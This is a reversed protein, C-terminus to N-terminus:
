PPYAQPSYRLASLRGGPRAASAGLGTLPEGAVQLTVQVSSSAAVNFSAPPLSVRGADGSILVNGGQFNAVNSQGLGDIGVYFTTLSQLQYQPNVQDLSDPNVVASYGNFSLTFSSESVGPAYVATLKTRDASLSLQSLTGAASATSLIAALNNDAATKQRLPQSADFEVLFSSGQRAAKAAVLPSAARYVIDLVQPATSTFVVSSAESPATFGGGSDLLLLRYSTSTKFGSIQYGTVASTNPDTTLSGIISAGTPGVAIIGAVESPSPSSGDPRSLSGSLSAGPSLAIAGLNVSGTTITVVQSAYAYGLAAVTLTYTGSALSPIAFGGGLDTAFVVDAVPNKLPAVGTRQLLVDAGLEPGLNANPGTPFPLELPPGAALVQGSISYPARKLSFNLAAPSSVDVALSATQQYPPLSEGQSEFDPRAAAFVDYYRIAPDLGALAFRGSVDTLATIPRGSAGAGRLSPRAAVVIGPLPAGTSADLVQGSLRAAAPLSVVGLDSVGAATVAVGSVAADAADGYPTVFKVDYNGPILGDILFQGNPDLTPGTSGPPGGAFGIGGNFWPDALAEIALGPPLLNQDFGNVLVFQTAGGPLTRQVALRLKITGAALLQLNQGTLDQGAVQVPLPAAAYARPYTTDRAALVYAGPPVQPILYTAVGAGNFSAPAQSVLRGQSDIL